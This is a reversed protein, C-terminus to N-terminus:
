ERGLLERLKAIEEPTMLLLYNKVTWHYEQTVGHLGAPLRPAAHLKCHVLHYKASEGPAVVRAQIPALFRKVAAFRSPKLWSSGYGDEEDPSDLDACTFNRLSDGRNEARAANAAEGDESLIPLPCSRAERLWERTQPMLRTIIPFWRTVMRGHRDRFKVVFLPLHCKQQRRAVLAPASAIAAAYEQRFVEWHPADGRYEYSGRSDRSHRQPLSFNMESTTLGFGCVQGAGPLRWYVANAPDAMLLERLPPEKGRRYFSIARSLCTGDRLELRVAYYSGDCEVDEANEWGTRKFAKALSAAARRCVRPDATRLGAFDDTKGPVCFPSPLFTVAVVEDAAPVIARFRGGVGLRGRDGVRRGGRRAAGAVDFVAPPALAPVLRVGACLVWPHGGRVGMGLRGPAGEM